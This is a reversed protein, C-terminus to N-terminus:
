YGGANVKSHLTLLHERWKGNQCVTELFHQYNPKRPFHQFSLTPQLNNYLSSAHFMTILLKMADVLNLKIFRTSRWLLPHIQALVSNFEMKSNWHFNGKHSASEEWRRAQNYASTQVATNKNYSYSNLMDQESFTRM